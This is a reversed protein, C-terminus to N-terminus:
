RGTKGKRSYRRASSHILTGPVGSGRWERHMRRIHVKLGSERSSGYRDHCYNVAKAKTDHTDARVIRGGLWVRSEWPETKRERKVIDYGEKKDGIVFQGM